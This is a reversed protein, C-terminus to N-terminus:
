LVQSALQSEQAADSTMTLVTTLGTGSVCIQVDVDKLVLIVEHLTYAVLVAVVEGTVLCLFPLKVVYRVV